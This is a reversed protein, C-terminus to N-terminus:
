PRSGHQRGRAARLGGRRAVPRRQGSGHRFIVSRLAGGWGATPPWNGGVAATPPFQGGTAPLFEFKPKSRRSKASHSRAVSTVAVVACLGGERVGVGSDVGTSKTGQNGHGRDGPAMGWGHRKSWCGVDAPSLAVPQQQRIAAAMRRRQAALCPEDTLRGNAAASPRGGGTAAEMPPRRGGLHIAALSQRCRFLAAAPRCSGGTDAAPGGDDAMPGGRRRRAAPWPPSSGGPVAM